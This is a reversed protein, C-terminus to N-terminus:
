KAAAKKFVFLFGDKGAFDKPRKGEEISYALKLGDAKQELIGLAKAGKVGEPGEVIEMDVEAPTTGAKVKYGMVFTGMEGKITVKDATFTYEGKKASDSDVVEGGKKGSVFTWKGDLKIPAEDPVAGAVGVKPRDQAAALTLGATLLLAAFSKM